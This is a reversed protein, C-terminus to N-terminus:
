KKINILKRIIDLLLSFEGICNIKIFFGLNKILIKFGLNTICWKTFPSMPFMTKILNYHNQKTVGLMGSRSQGGDFVNMLVKDVVFLEGFKLINFITCADSWLAEDTVFSQKIQDTRFIGYFIQNHRLNKIYEDIREEYTGSAPFNDMHGFNEMNKKFIKKIRSDNANKKLESTSKGFLEMKSSSCAIEKNYELVQVVEELFKPLIIDDVASWLFYESKAKKLIFGFNKWGGINKIQRFYKIRNDKSAYEKCIESTQDNSCNDSIIIEFDTFTQELLSDLKKRIFKEGNYVPLGISIKTKRTSIEENNKTM